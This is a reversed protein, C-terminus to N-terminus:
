FSFTVTTNADLQGDFAKKAGKLGAARLTADTWDISDSQGARLQSTDVFVSATVTSGPAFGNGVKRVIETGPQKEILESYTGHGAAAPTWADPTYWEINIVQHSTFNTVCPYASEPTANFFPTGDPYQSCPMVIRGMVMTRGPVDSLPIPDPLSYAGRASFGGDGLITANGPMYIREADVYDEPTDYVYTPGTKYYTIAIQLRHVAGGNPLLTVLDEQHETVYANAKNGGINADVVFFGDGGGTHIQGSLGLQQVFLEARPDALYLQLDKTKLAQLAVSIAKKLAGTGMSKIKALLAPALAHTFAKRDAREGATSGACAGLQHCHIQSELNDPTIPPSSPFNPLTLPGTMELLDAILGTTFAAVGQLQGHNPVEDAIQTIAMDNRANTPFDPSLNVDRLGWDIDCAFGSFPWWWFYRPPVPGYRARPIGGDFSSNCPLQDSGDHRALISLKYYQEDLKYVDELHLQMDKPQKGGQLTLIGWNGQFGGGPRLETRDMAIVLYYAPQGIGLLGPAVDLLTRMQAFLGVATPLMALLAGYKSGPRLQAPLAQIDLQQYAAIADEVRGQADAMVGRAQHIDDPTIGLSNDSSLAGGQLPTLLTQGVQLGEDAAATLDYGIRILLRYDRATSSVAAFPAGLVNTAANIEYLDHELGDIDSQVRKLTDPKILEQKDGKALAQLHSARSAADAIDYGLRLLPIAPAMATLLFGLLFVVLMTGVTPRQRLILRLRALRGLPLEAVSISGLLALSQAWADDADEGDADWQGTYAMGGQRNWEDHQAGWGAEDDWEDDQTGWGHRSDSDRADLNTAWNTDWTGTEWGADWDQEWDVEDVWGSGPGGKSSEAVRARHSGTRRGSAPYAQSDGVGRHHSPDAREDDPADLLADLEAPDYDSARWDATTPLREQKRRSASEGDADGAPQGRRFQSLLGGGHSGAGRKSGSGRSSSSSPPAAPPNRSADAPRPSEAAPEGEPAGGRFRSLLGGGDPVAPQNQGPRPQRPSQRQRDDM